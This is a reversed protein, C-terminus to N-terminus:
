GLGAVCQGRQQVFSQDVDVSQRDSVVMWMSLNSCIVLTLCIKGVFRFILYILLPFRRKWSEGCISCRIPRFIRSRGFVSLVSMLKVLVFSSSINNFDQIRGSFSLCLLSM